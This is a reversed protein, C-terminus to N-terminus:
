KMPIELTVAAGRHPFGPFRVTARETGLRLKIEDDTQFPDALSLTLKDGSRQVIMVCPRDVEIETGLARATGPAHFVAGLWNKEVIEVAQLVVSNSVVRWPRQKALAPMQEQRVGPFVAWEFQLDDETKGHDTWFSFVQKAPQGPQEVDQLVKVGGAPALYGVEDHWAWSINADRVSQGRRITRTENGVGYVTNESGSARQELNTFTPEAHRLDFGAGLHVIADELFFVARRGNVSLDTAKQQGPRDRDVNVFRSQWWGMVGTHATNVGGSFPTGGFVMRAYSKDPYRNWASALQDPTVHRTTMGPLRAFDMATFVGGTAMDQFERTDRRLLVTGLPLLVSDFAWRKEHQAFTEMGCTRESVARVSAMWKPYHKSMYETTYYYKV